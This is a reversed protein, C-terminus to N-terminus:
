AIGTEVLASPLSVWRLSALTLTIAHAATFATVIRLLELAVPRLTTVARWRRGQAQYAAPLLLALLFLAHDFGLWIHTFGAAIFDAAISRAPKGHIDLTEQAHDM